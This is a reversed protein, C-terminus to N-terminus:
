WASLSLSTDMEREGAGAYEPSLGAIIYFLLLGHNNFNLSGGTKRRLIEGRASIFKRAHRKFNTSVYPVIRFKRSWRSDSEPADTTAM